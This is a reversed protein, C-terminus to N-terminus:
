RRTKDKSLENLLNKNNVLILLLIHLFVNLNEQIDKNNVGEEPGQKASRQCYVIHVCSVCLYLGM